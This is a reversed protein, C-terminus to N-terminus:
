RDGQIFWLLILAVVLPEMEMVGKGRAGAM